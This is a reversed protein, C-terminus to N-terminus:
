PRLPDSLSKMLLKLLSQAFMENLIKQIIHLRLITQLRTLRRKLFLQFRHLFLDLAQPSLGNIILISLILPLKLQQSEMLLTEM